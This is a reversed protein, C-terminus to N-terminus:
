AEYCPKCMDSRDPYKWIFYPGECLECERILRANLANLPAPKRCNGCVWWNFGGIDQLTFGDREGRCGCVKDALRAPVTAYDAKSPWHTM